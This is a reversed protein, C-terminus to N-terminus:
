SVLFLFIILFASSYQVVNTDGRSHLFFIQPWRRETFSALQFSLEWEYFFSFLFSYFRELISFIIRVFGSVTSSYTFEENEPWGLQQLFDIPVYSWMSSIFHHIHHVWRIYINSKVKLMQDQHLYHKIIMVWNQDIDM